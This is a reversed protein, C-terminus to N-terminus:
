GKDYISEPHRRISDGYSERGVGGLTVCRRVADSGFRGRLMDMCSELAERRIDPESEPFMPLQPSDERGLRSARVTLARVAGGPERYRRFLEAASRFLTESTRSPAALTCQREISSLDGARIGLHVCSAEMDLRRLRASINESLSYLVPRADTESYIDRPLTVGCSVSKVEPLEDRRQVPESELGLACRKLSVGNKGLILRLFDADAAALQGVTEIGYLRLRAETKGGVFLLERVPLHWVLTEMEGRPIVTAADPFRMGSALKAMTKNFSVGVSVTLGTERKVRERICDAIRRGADEWPLEEGCILKVSGTVDLWCEDPGFSEVRDTFTEYIQRVDASLKAYYEFDPPVFLIEPCKARAQWLPEGTKVGMARAEYSKALVIGHRKEEDGAVAIPRRRLSPSRVAEASAYFNNLDSHLILREM